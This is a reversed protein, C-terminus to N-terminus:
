FPHTKNKQTKNTDPAASPHVAGLTTLRWNAPKPRKPHRRRRQFLMGNLISHPSSPTNHLAPQKM